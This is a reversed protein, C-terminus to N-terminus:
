YMKSSIRQQLGGDIIEINLDKRFENLLKNYLDWIREQNDIMLGTDFHYTTTIFNICYNTFDYYKEVVSKPLILSYKYTLDQMGFGLHFQEGMNKICYNEWEKKDKFNYIECFPFSNVNLRKTANYCVDNMEKYADLKLQFLKDQFEKRRSNKINLYTLGVNISTLLITSLTFITQSNM